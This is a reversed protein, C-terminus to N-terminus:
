TQLDGFLAEFETDNLERIALRVANIREPHDTSPVTDYRRDVYVYYQAFRRAQEVHENGEATRNAAKDPYGGQEHYTIEGDFAVHIGHSM